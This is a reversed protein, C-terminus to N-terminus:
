LYEKQIIEWVTEVDSSYSFRTHICELCHHKFEEFDNIYKRNQEVVKEAFDYMAKLELEADYRVGLLDLRDDYGFM